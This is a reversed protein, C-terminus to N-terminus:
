LTPLSVPDTELPPLTLDETLCAWTLAVQECLGESGAGDWCPGWLQCVTESYEM